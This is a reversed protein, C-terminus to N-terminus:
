KTRGKPTTSSTGGPTVMELGEHVIVVELKGEQFMVTAPWGKHFVWTAVPEAFRSDYMTIRGERLAANLGSSDMVRRWQWLPIAGPEEGQLTIQYPRLPGPSSQTAMMGSPLVVTGCDIENSSGLGSCSNFSGMVDGGVDLTYLAYSSALSLEEDGEARQGWLRGESLLALATLLVGGVIPLSWAYNRRM